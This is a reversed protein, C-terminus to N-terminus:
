VLWYQIIVALKVASFDQPRLILVLITGRYKLSNKFFFIETPLIIDLTGSRDALTRRQNFDTALKHYKVQADYPSFYLDFRIITVKSSTVVLEQEYM